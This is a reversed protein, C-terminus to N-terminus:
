IGDGHLNGWLEEISKKEYFVDVVNLKQLDESYASAERVETCLNIGIKMGQCITFLVIPMILSAEVTYSAKYYKKM